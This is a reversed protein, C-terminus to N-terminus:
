EKKGAREEGRGEEMESTHSGGRWEEEEWGAEILEAPLEVEMLALAVLQHVVELVAHFAKGYSTGFVRRLVEVAVYGWSFGLLSMAFAPSAIASALATASPALVASEAAIQQLVPGVLTSLISGTSGMAFATSAQVTYAANALSTVYERMGEHRLGSRRIRDLVAKNENQSQGEEDEEKGRRKRGAIQKSLIGLIVGEMKKEALTFPRPRSFVGSRNKAKTPGSKLIHQLRSSPENLTSVAIRYLVREWTASGVGPTLKEYSHTCRAQIGKMPSFLIVDAELHPDGFHQTLALVIDLECAVKNRTRPAMSILLLFPRLFGREAARGKEETERTWQRHIDAETWDTDLWGKVGEYIRDWVGTDTMKCWYHDDHIDTLNSTSPPPPLLPAEEQRAEPNGARGEREGGERGEEEGKELMCEKEIAGRSEEEAVEGAITDGEGESIQCWRECESEGEGRVEEEDEGDGESQQLGGSGGGKEEGAEEREAGVEGKGGRWVGLMSSLSSMLGRRGKEQGGDHRVRGEMLSQLAVPSLSCAVCAKKSMYM